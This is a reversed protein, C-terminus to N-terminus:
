LQLLMLGMTLAFMLGISEAVLPASSPGPTPSDEEVDTNDPDSGDPTETTNSGGPTNTPDTMGVCPEMGPYYAGDTPNLLGGVDACTIGIADYVSEFASKVATSNTKSAGVKVNDYITTAADASANHVRPLVAAAFAAAEAKEKEGTIPILM